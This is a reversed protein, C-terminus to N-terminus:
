CGKGLIRVDYANEVDPLWTLGEKFEMTMCSGYVAHLPGWRPPTCKCRASVIRQDKDPVEQIMIISCRDGAHVSCLLRVCGRNGVIGPAWSSAPLTFVLDAIDTPRRLATQCALTALPKPNTTASANPTDVESSLITVDHQTLTNPLIINLTITNPHVHQSPHDHYRPTQREQAAM